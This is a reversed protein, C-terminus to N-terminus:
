RMSLCAACVLMLCDQVERGRCRQLATESSSGRSKSAKSESIFV